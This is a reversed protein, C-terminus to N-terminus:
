REHAFEVHMRPATSLATIVFLRLVDDDIMQEGSIYCKSFHPRARVFPRHFASWDRTFCPHSPLDSCPFCRSTYVRGDDVFEVTDDLNSLPLLMPRSTSTCVFVATRSSYSWGCYATWCRDASVCYTGCRASSSKASIGRFFDLVTRLWEWVGHVVEHQIHRFADVVAWARKLLEDDAVSDLVGEFSM